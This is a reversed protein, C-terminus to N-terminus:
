LFRQRLTNCICLFTKGLLTSRKQDLIEDGKDLWCKVDAGCSWIENLYSWRLGKGQRNNIVGEVLQENFINNAVKSLDVANAACCVFLCTFILLRSM